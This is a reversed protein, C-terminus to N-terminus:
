TAGYALRTVAALSEPPGPWHERLLEPGGSRLAIRLALAVAIADDIQGAVPIFDPVLDIPMVLYAILALIVGKRWGAVRRDALLRRFLVVCDPIFTALARADGRRGAAILAIVLAAYVAVALGLGLLAWEIASM